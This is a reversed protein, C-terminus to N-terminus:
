FWDIILKSEDFVKEATDAELLTQLDDCSLAEVGTKGDLENFESQDVDREIWIGITANAEITGVVLANVEGEQPILVAQYPLSNGNAIEEFKLNGCADTGATVAAIKYSALDDRETWIRVDILANSDNKFVILRVEPLADKLVRRSIAPFINNLGGNPILTSSVLGGLSKNPDTQADGSKIAGSYLLQM